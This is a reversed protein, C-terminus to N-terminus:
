STFHLICIKDQKYNGEVKNAKTLKSSFIDTLLDILEISRGNNLFLTFHCKILIGLHSLKHTDENDM